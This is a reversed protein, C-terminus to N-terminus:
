DPQQHRADGNGQVISQVGETGFPVTIHMRALAM